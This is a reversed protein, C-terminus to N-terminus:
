PIQETLIQNTAEILNRATHTCEAIAQPCYHGDKGVLIRTGVGAALAAQMDAPKDGVMLSSNMDIDWKQQAAILMGPKPKRCNCECRYAELAKEPHHPCFFIDNIEIGHQRFEGKMWDCLLEFEKESYYGRGIGSQNTAIILLYGANQLKLCADFVGDIFTFEEPTHVYAHDINIVGDRDLFAAKKLNM